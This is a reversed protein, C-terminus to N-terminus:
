KKLRAKAYALDLMNTILSGSCKAFNVIPTCSHLSATIYQFLILPILVNLKILIFVVESVAVDVDM